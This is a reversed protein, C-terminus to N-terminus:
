DVRLAESCSKTRLFLYNEAKVKVLPLTRAKSYRATLLASLGLVEETLKGKVACPYYPRYM